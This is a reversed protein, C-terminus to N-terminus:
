LRKFEEVVRVAKEATVSPPMVGATTLFIRRRDPCAAVDAAVTSVIVEAPQLWLTANTGGILAKSPMRTRGEALTTDGLPPTTFAENAMAPLEDILELLANLKGCMHHVPIRGHELALNGCAALQPMCLERFMTPSILTTSTNETMWFTDAQEFPMRARLSRMRDEHMLDIVERFLEPVDVMLYVSAVPGCTHQMLEMLPSPGAGSITVAGAGALRAQRGKAEEVAKGDVTYTTDRFRWRLASLEEPTEAFFKTPHWSTSSPDYTERSTLTGDPTELVTTRVGNSEEAQVRVHPHEERCPVGVHAMPDCGLAVLLDLGALDRYPAPQQQQWGGPIKLWVPFRDTEEGRLACLIRERTTM